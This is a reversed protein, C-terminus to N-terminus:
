SNGNANRIKGCYYPNGPIDDKTIKRVNRNNEYKVAAFMAIARLECPTILSDTMLIVMSDVIRHVYPDSIYAQEIQSPTYLNRNSM